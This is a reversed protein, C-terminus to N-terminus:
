RFIADFINEIMEQEVTKEEEEPTDSDEADEGAPPPQRGLLRDLVKELGESAKKEIFKKGIYELDVAFKIQPAKGSVKLPIRIEENEDLLYQLQSVNEVMSASLDPPIFFLGDLALRQQFDIEGKGSFLFGDAEIEIPELKVRGNGIRLGAEVKTLLTDKQTLKEKYREPLTAKFRAVLNPFISIQNLVVKLVNIDTLRGEKIELFGEGFLNKRLRDSNFGRGRVDLRGLLLGKLQVPAQKQNIIEGLNLDRMNLRFNFEERGLYDNVGGEATLRGEGLGLSLEKIKIKSETMELRVEIPAIPLALQKHKISGARIQGSGILSIVGNRGVEMQEIKVNVRGKLEEILGADQFKARSSELQTLSFSSLDTTLTIDKLSISKIEWNLAANGKILINPQGSLYALQFTFTFPENLSFRDIKLGIRSLDLVRQPKDSRDIYTLKGNEIIIAEASILPMSLAVPPASAVKRDQPLTLKSLALTDKKLFPPGAKSELDMRGDKERIIIFHPSYFYINSLLIQRKTLLPILKVGLSINKVSLINEGPLGANGALTLQKLRLHIGKKLSIQFSIHDFDVRRGLADSARATIQPKFRNIDFTKLIIFIGMITVLILILFTVIVIKLIKM